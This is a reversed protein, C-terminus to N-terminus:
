FDAKMQQESKVQDLTKGIMISRKLLVSESHTVTQKDDEEEEDACEPVVWACFKAGLSLAVEPSWEFLAQQEVMTRFQQPEFGLKYIQNKLKEFKQDILDM